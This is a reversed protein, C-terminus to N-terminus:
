PGARVEISSGLFTSPLPRAAPDLVSARSFTLPSVGARLARFSMRCLTGKGRAGKTATLRSLGVVLGGGHAPSGPSVLFSTTTKDRGLFDGEASSSAIYELISPDYHLTFPVSGVNAGAIRVTVVVVSGLRISRAAPRVSVTSTAAAMAMEPQTLLVAAIMPAMFGFRSTNM